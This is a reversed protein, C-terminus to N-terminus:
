TFIHKMNETGANWTKQELQLMGLDWFCMVCATQIQKIQSLKEINISLSVLAKM